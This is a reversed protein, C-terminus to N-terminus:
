KVIETKGEVIRALVLPNKTIGYHNEPTFDYIGTTGQTPGLADLADRVAAGEVSGAKGAAAATLMVADWGRAAWNPDRDGYKARWPTLFESLASKLAGPPLSDFVQSPAAVFFFRDGMVAAVPRFVNLDELSM